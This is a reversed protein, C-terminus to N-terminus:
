ELEEILYDLEEEQDYRFGGDIAQTLNAKIEGGTFAKNSGIHFHYFPDMPEITIDMENYIEELGKVTGVSIEAPNALLEAAKAHSINELVDMLAQKDPVEYITKELIVETKDPLYREIFAKIDGLRNKNFTIREPKARFFVGGGATVTKYSKGKIQGDKDRKLNEIAYEKLFSKNAELHFNYSNRAEGIFRTAVNAIDEIKHQYHLLLKILSDFRAPGHISFVETKIEAVATSTEKTEEQNM